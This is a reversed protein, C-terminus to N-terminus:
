RVCDDAWTRVSIRIVPDPRFHRPTSADNGGQRRGHCRPLAQQPPQHWPSLVQENRTAKAIPDKPKDKPLFGALRNSTMFYGLWALQYVNDSQRDMLEGYWEGVHAGITKKTAQTPHSRLIAEVIALVKPMVKARLTPLMLLLSLTQDIERPKLALRLTRNKNVLDALFRDIVGTGPNTRDITVVSLYV